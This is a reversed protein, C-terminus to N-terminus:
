RHPRPITTNQPLKCIPRLTRKKSCTTSFLLAPNDSSPNSFFADTNQSLGSFAKDYSQLVNTAVSQYLNALATNAQDVATQKATVDEQRAGALM